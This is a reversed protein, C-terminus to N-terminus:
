QTEYHSLIGARGALKKWDHRLEQFTADPASHRAIAVLYCPPAIAGGYESFLARMRRRVRNRTVANGVKRTLILGFKFPETLQPSPLVALVIFRGAFSKGERRVRAFERRSKMRLARPLRMAILHAM